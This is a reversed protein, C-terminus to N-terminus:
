MLSCWCFAPSNLLQLQRCRRAGVASLYPRTNMKVWGCLRPLHSDDNANVWTLAGCCNAPSTMEENKMTWWSIALDNLLDRTPDFPRYRTPDDMLPEALGYQTPHDQYWTSSARIHPIIRQPNLSAGFPGPSREHPDSLGLRTPDGKLTLSCGGAELDSTLIVMEPKPPSLSPKVEVLWRDSRRM